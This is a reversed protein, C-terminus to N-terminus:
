VGPFERILAGSRMRTEIAQRSVGRALLERRAVVGHAGGAMRAMKRAVADDPDPM